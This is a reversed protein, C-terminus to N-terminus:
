PTSGEIEDYYPCNDGCSEYPRYVTICDKLLSALNVNMCGDIKKDYFRCKSM